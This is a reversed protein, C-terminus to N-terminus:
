SPCINLMAGYRPTTFLNGNETSTGSLHRQVAQVMVDWAEQKKMNHVGTPINIDGGIRWHWMIQRQIRKNTDEGPGTKRLQQFDLVPNFAELFAQLEAVKGKAKEAAEWREKGEAIDAKVPPLPDSVWPTCQSSM